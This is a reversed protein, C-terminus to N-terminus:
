KGQISVKPQSTSTYVKIHHNSRSYHSLILLESSASEGLADKFYATVRMMAIDNLVEQGRQRGLETALDIQYEWIGEHDTSMKLERTKLDTRGGSKMEVSARVEMRSLFLRQEDLRSSDHHAAM